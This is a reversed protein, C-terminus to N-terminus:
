GKQDGRGHCGALGRVMPGLLEPVTGHKQAARDDSAHGVQAQHKVVGASQAQDFFGREDEHLEPKILYAGDLELPEFIM